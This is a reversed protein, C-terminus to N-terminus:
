LASLWEMVERNIRDSRPPEVIRKSVRGSADVVIVPGEVEIAELARQINPQAGVVIPFSSKNRANRIYRECDSELCYALLTLGRGRLAPKLRNWSEIDAEITRVHVAALLAGGDGPNLRVFQHSVDYGILPELREVRPIKLRNENLTRLLVVDYALRVCLVNGALVLAALIIRSM